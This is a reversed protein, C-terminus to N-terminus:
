IACGSSKFLRSLKGVTLLVKTGLQFCRSSCFKCCSLRTLNTPPAPPIFDPGSSRLGRHGGGEWGDLARKLSCVGSAAPASSSNSEGQLMRGLHPHVM